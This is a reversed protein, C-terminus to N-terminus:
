GHATLFTWHPHTKKENKKRVLVVVLEVGHVSSFVRKTEMKKQVMSEDIGGNRKSRNLVRLSVM